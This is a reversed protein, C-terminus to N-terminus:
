DDTEGYWEGSTAEAQGDLDDNGVPSKGRGYFRSSPLVLVTAGYSFTERGRRKEALERDSDTYTRVYDVRKELEKRSPPEGDHWWMIYHQRGKDDVFDKTIREVGSVRNAMEFCQRSCFPEARIMDNSEIEPDLSYLRGCYQCRYTAM